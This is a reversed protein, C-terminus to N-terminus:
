NGNMGPIPPYRSFIREMRTQPVEPQSLNATQQLLYLCYLPHTSNMAPRASIGGYGNSGDLVVSYFTGDHRVAFPSASRLFWMKEFGDSSTGIRDNDDSFYDVSRVEEASLFFVSEQDLASSGVPSDNGKSTEIIAKKELIAFANEYFNRCWSRSACNADWYLWGRDAYGIIYESLLLKGSGANGNGLVRWRVPGDHLATYGNHETYNGFWVTNGKTIKKGGIVIVPTGGGYAFSPLIMLAAGCLLALALLIRGAHKM